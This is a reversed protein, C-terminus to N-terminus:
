STESYKDFLVNIQISSANQYNNMRRYNLYEVDPNLVLNWDGGLLLENNGM